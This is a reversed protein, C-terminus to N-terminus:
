LLTDFVSTYRPFRVSEVLGEEYENKSEGICLMPELGNKLVKQVQPFVCTDDIFLLFIGTL